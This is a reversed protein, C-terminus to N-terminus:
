PLQSGLPLIFSIRRSKIKRASPAASSPAQAV